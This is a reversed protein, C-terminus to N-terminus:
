ARFEFSVPLELVPMPFLDKYVFVKPFYLVAVPYSDSNLFSVPSLLVVEPAKARYSFVAPFYLVAVPNSARLSVM